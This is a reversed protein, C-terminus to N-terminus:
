MEVLFPDETSELVKDLSQSQSNKESNKKMSLNTTDKMIDIVGHGLTNDIRNVRITLNMIDNAIDDLKSMIDDATNYAM